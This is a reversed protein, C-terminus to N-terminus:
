INKIKVYVVFGYKIWCWSMSNNKKSSINFYMWMLNQKPKAM